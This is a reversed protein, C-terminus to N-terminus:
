CRPGHGVLLSFPLGGLAIFAPGVPQPLLLGVVACGVGAVAGVMIATASAAATAGRWRAGSAGSYRVMLPDTATGRSANLIVTFTIFALSFAGFGRPGYEKAVYLSLAFNSVSGVAQDVVGWSLRGATKSVDRRDIASKLSAATV